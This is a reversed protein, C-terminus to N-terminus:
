SIAKKIAREIKSLSMNVSATSVFEKDNDRLHKITSVAEVLAELMEPSATILKINAMQEETWIKGNQRFSFIWHSDNTLLVFEDADGQEKCIWPGPTHKHAM